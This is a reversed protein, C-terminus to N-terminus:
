SLMHAMLARLQAPKVPKQLIELGAQEIEMLVDESYNATVVFAPIDRKLRKRILAITQTGLDGQDLQYDAIILDPSRRIRGIAELAESTSVAPVIVCGWRELLTIMARLVSRDNEVVVVVASNLGYIIKSHTDSSEKFAKGSKTRAAYLSFVSGKGPISRVLLRHDLANAMRRVISLGLGLGQEANKDAAAGRQFEDFIREKQDEAIGYGTDCVSIRVQNNLLHTAVLVGGKETYRIANSLLNQVIRRSLVVDTKLSYDGLRVRLVIGKAEANARYDDIIPGILAKVSIAQLSIEIVGADLKSIDLLTKLLDEIHGLARRIQVALAIQEEDTLSEILATGTLRAANLPQLLDHSAAALFRTKYSNAREAEDRAQRMKRSSVELKELADTLEKTRQKVQQELGIATKFLSYANAHTNVDREVRDMLVQNIRQSKQLALQLSEIQASKTLARETSASM